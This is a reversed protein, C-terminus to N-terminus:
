VEGGVGGIKLDGWCLLIVVLGGVAVVGLEGDVAACDGDGGIALGGRDRAGVAFYGGGM